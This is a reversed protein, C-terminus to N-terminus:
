QGLLPRLRKRPTSGVLHVGVAVCIGPLNRLYGVVSGEQQSLIRVQAPPGIERGADAAPPTFIREHVRPRDLLRGMRRCRGHRLGGREYIFKCWQGPM